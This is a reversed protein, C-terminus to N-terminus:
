EAKKVLVLKNRDAKYIADYFDVLSSYDKAPFRGSYQEMSRYYFIKNGNLKVSNSYKGFKTEMNVPQPVSEPEYGKPIEIEVSDIDRYEMRLVVDTKREESTTLRRGSRTM